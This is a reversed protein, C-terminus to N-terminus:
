TAVMADRPKLGPLGTMETFRRAWREEDIDGWWQIWEIDEVRERNTLLAVADVGVPLRLPPDVHQAAALVAEVVADCRTPAVLQARVFRALRKMLRIDVEAITDAGAPLKAHM